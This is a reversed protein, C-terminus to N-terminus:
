GDTNKTGKPRGPKRKVPAVEKVDEIGEEGSQQDLVKLYREALEDPVIFALGTPGDMTTQVHNVDDAIELLLRLHEMKDKPLPSVLAM